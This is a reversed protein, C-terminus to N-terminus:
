SKEGALKKRATEWGGDEDEESEDQKQGLDGLLYLESAYDHVMQAWDAAEITEPAHATVFNAANNICMGQRMGDSNDHYERRPSSGGFPKPASKFKQGFKTEEITGYLEDGIQPAPSEPKKNISVPEGNGEVQILYTLMPGYASDWEKPKERVQKIVYTEAM